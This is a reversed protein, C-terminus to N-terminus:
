YEFCVYDLDDRKLFSIISCNLIRQIDVALINECHSYLILMTNIWDIRTSLSNKVDNNMWKDIQESTLEYIWENMQQENM